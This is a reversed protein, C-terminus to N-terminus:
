WQYVLLNNYFSVNRNGWSLVKQSHWTGKLWITRWRILDKYIDMVKLNRIQIKEKLKCKTLVGKWFWFKYHLELKIIYNVLTLVEMDQVRGLLLNLIYIPIQWFPLLGILSCYVLLFGGIPKRYLLFIGLRGEASGLVFIHVRETIISTM